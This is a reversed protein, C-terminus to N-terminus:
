QSSPAPMAHPCALLLELITELAQETDDRTDEDENAEEMSSSAMAAAALQFPFLQTESDLTLIVQPAALLISSVGTRWTRQGRSLAIHLPLHGLRNPISAALPYSQILVDVPDKTAGHQNYRAALSPMSATRRLGSGNCSAPRYSAAKHLPLDGSDDTTRVLEPHLLVILPLFPSLDGLTEETAMVVDHLITTASKSHSRPNYHHHKGKAALVLLTLREVLERLSEEQRTTMVTSMDRQQQAALEQLLQENEPNRSFQYWLIRAPKTAYENATTAMKPNVRLLEKIITTSCGHRFALHLPAGVIRSQVAAAQAGGRRILMLAVEESDGYLLIVHLPTWGESDQCLLAQPNADLLLQVVDLPARYLCALHLPTANNNNSTNNNHNRQNPKARYFADWPHSLVRVRAADWDRARIKENLIKTPTLGNSCFYNSNNHHQFLLPHHNPANTSGMMGSIHRANSPWGGFPASRPFLNDM